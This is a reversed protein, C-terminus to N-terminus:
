QERRWMIKQNCFIFPYASPFFHGTQEQLLPKRGESQTNIKSRNINYYILIKGMEHAAYDSINKISSRYDM